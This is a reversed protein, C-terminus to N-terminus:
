LMNRAALITYHRRLGRGMCDNSTSCLLNFISNLERKENSLDILVWGLCKTVNCLLWTRHIESKFAIHERFFFNKGSMNMAGRLLNKDM